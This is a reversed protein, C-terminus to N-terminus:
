AHMSMIIIVYASRAATSPPNLGQSLRLMQIDLIVRKMYHMFVCALM